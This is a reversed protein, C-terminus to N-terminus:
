YNKGIEWCKGIREGTKLYTRTPMEFLIPKLIGYDIKGNDNIFEEKVHTHIVKLIFHDHSKTEYNDVLECEMSIPSADILPTNKLIGESYRFVQSKDTNHGSAIGVYDAEVIMDETVINVSVVKNKKIGQNTYHAKAMSLMISDLGIIGIHAINIWNVKGEIETGVIVVPTPYLGVVAGVNKKM